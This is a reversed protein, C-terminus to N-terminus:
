ARHELNASAGPHAGRSDSCGARTEMQPYLDPLRHELERERQPESDGAPLVAETAADIHLVSMQAFTLQDQARYRRIAEIRDQTHEIRVPCQAGAPFLDVVRPGSPTSAQSMWVATGSTAWDNSSPRLRGWSGDAENNGGAKQVKCPPLSATRAPPAAIASAPDTDGLM